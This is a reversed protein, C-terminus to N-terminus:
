HRPTLRKIHLIDLLAFIVLLGFSGLLYVSTLMLITVSSLLFRASGVLSKM